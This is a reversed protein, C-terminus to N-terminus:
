AKNVEKEFIERKFRPNNKELIAVIKDKITVWLRLAREYSEESYLPNPIPRTDKFVKAFKKFDKRTMM